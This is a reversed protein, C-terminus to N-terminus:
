RARHYGLSGDVKAAAISIEVRNIRRRPFKAPFKLSAIDHVSRGGVSATNQVKPTPVTIEVGDIRRSPFLLPAKVTTFIRDNVVLDAKLRRRGDYVVDNVGAAPVCIEVREVGRGSFLFPAEIIRQAPHDGRWCNTVSLDVERRRVRTKIVDEVGGGAFRDQM